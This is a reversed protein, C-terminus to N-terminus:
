NKNNFHCVEEVLGLTEKKQVLTSNITRFLFKVTNKRMIEEIKMWLRNRQKKKAEEKGLEKNEINSTREIKWSM